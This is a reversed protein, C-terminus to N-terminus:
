SCAGARGTTWCYDIASLKGDNDYSADKNMSKPITGKGGCTNYGADPDTSSYATLQTNNFKTGTENLKYSGNQLWIEYSALNDTSSLTILVSGYYAGNEGRNAVHKKLSGTAVMARIPICTEKTTQGAMILDSYAMEAINIIESAEDTFANRRANEQANLVAPMAVLILIALVVIVALLEVLTFGNKEKKM